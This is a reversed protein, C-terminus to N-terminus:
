YRERAGYNKRVIIDSKRNGEFERIEQREKASMNPYRNAYISYRWDSVGMLRHAEDVTPINTTEQHNLSIPKVAERIRAAVTSVPMMSTDYHVKADDAEDCIRHFVRSALEFENDDFTWSMELAPYALISSALVLRIKYTNEFKRLFIRLVYVDSNNDSNSFELEYDKNNAAIKDVIQSSPIGEILM